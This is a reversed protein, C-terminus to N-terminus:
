DRLKTFWDLAMRHHDYRNEHGGEFTETRIEDFGVRDLLRAVLEGARPSAISDNTGNTLYIAADRFKSKRFRYNEFVKEVPSNNTGSLYFGAPYRDIHEAIFGATAFCNKGGGSFGGYYLPWEKSQPWMKELEILARRASAGRANWYTLGIDSEIEGPHAGLVIYGAAMGSPAYGQARWANQGGTTDDAIFIPTAVNPDFNSPVAVVIKVTQFTSLNGRGKTEALERDERTAEVTLIHAQGRVLTAGDPLRMPDPASNAVVPTLNRELWDKIYAQDSPRLREMRVRYTQGDMELLAVRGEVGVLRAQITRGSISDKWDRLPVESIPAHEIAQTQGRVILKSNPVGDVIKQEPNVPDLIWEEDVIFKYAYEGPELKVEISWLGQDSRQMAVPDWNNYESAFLVSSAQPQDLKLQVANGGFLHFPLLLLFLRM